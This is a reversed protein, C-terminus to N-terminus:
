NWRPDPPQDELGSAERGLSRLVARWLLQPDPAFVHEATGAAPVWAGSALELELQAASWGSYGLIMRVREQAEAGSELLYQGVSDLDGGIWVDQMLPIGGTIREPVRHLIQLANLSVPGGIFLPTDLQSLAAHGALVERTTHGSLKNLVLGYAGQPTHQCILVVAHMFNPDLMQPSAALLTGQEIRLQLDM